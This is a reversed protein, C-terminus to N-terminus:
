VVSKRDTLGSRLVDLAHFDRDSNQGRATSHGAVGGHDRAAHALAANGTRAVNVDFLFGSLHADFALYEFFAVPDRQVAGGSAHDLALEVRDLCLRIIRFQQLQHAPSGNRLSPTRAFASMGRSAMWARANPASPIPSHRVSCMNKASSRM